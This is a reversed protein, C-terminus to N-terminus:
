KEEKIDELEPPPKVRRTCHLSEHVKDHDPNALIEAVIRQLHSKKFSTSLKKFKELIIGDADVEEEELIEVVGHVIRLFRWCRVLVIVEAATTNGGIEFYMSISVVIVDLIHLPNHFFVEGEGIISMLLELAFISLIAISAIELNHEYTHITHDGYHELSHAGDHCAKDFNEVQTDLYYIEMQTSVVLIVIDIVLLTNLLHHVIPNSVIRCLTGRWGPHDFHVPKKKLLVNRTIKDVFEPGRIALRAKPKEM